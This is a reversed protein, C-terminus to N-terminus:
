NLENILSEINQQVLSAEKSLWSQANQSMTELLKPDALLKQTRVLLEEPDKVKILANCAELKDANDKCNQFYPGIISLKGWAAPELPNHGGIPVFTGGLFFINAIPYLKFLEGLKCVLLIDNQQLITEIDRYYDEPGIKSNNDWLYFSFKSDKVKQILEKQWNFHRPALILKLDKYKQKLEKYLNLYIDLEGPHISGALLTPGQLVSTRVRIQTRKKLVNVAKVNGLVKLKKKEIGLDQFNIKDDLSQTFITKFINFFPTFIFSLKQYRPKSRQSIRANLLYAPIKFLKSLIILNPWIEAEIIILAKPKIRKYALFVPLLFDFPIFSIYDAHLNKQAMKKGSPTGTTVYCCANPIEKKIQEILSQISLIEGVSVAHIWFAKNNKAKPINPVIGLREKFNGFAPKKNLWRKILYIAILPLCIIQIIQYILFITVLKIKDLFLMM